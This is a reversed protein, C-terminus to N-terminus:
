GTPGEVEQSDKDPLVGSGPTKHEDTLKPKDHPGAPPITQDPKPKQDASRNEPNQTMCLFRGTEASTGGRWGADAPM